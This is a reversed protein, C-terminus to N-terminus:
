SYDFLPLCKFIGIKNICICASVGVARLLYLDNRLEKPDPNTKIETAKQQKLAQKQEHESVEGDSRELEGPEALQLLSDANTLTKM